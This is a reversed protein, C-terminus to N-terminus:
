AVAFIPSSQTAPVATPLNINITHATRASLGDHLEIIIEAYEAYKPTAKGKGNSDVKISYHTLTERWVLKWNATPYATLNFQDLLPQMAQTFAEARNKAMNDVIKRGALLAVGVLFQLIFCILTINIGGGGQKFMTTFTAMVLLFIITVFMGGLVYTLCKKSKASLLPYAKIYNNIQSLQSKLQEASLYGYLDLCWDAKFSHAPAFCDCGPVDDETLPIIVLKM